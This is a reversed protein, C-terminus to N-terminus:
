SNPSVSSAMTPRPAPSPNPPVNHKLNRHVSQKTHSTVNRGTNNQDSRKIGKRPSRKLCNRASRKICQRASRKLCHQASRAPHHGSRTARDVRHEPRQAHPSPREVIQWTLSPQRDHLRLRPAHRRGSPANATPRQAPHLPPHADEPRHQHLRQLRQHRQHCKLLSARRSM